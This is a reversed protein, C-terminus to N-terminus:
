AGGTIAGLFRKQRQARVFMQGNEQGESDDGHKCLGPQNQTFGKNEVWQNLTPVNGDYCDFSSNFRMMNRKILFNASTEPFDNAGGAAHLGDQVNDESRNYQIVNTNGITDHSM